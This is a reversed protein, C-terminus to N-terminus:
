NKQSMPNLGTIVTGIQFALPHLLAYGVGGTTITYTEKLHRQWSILGWFLSVTKPVADPKFTDLPVDPYLFCLIACFCYTSTLCLFANSYAASTTFGTTSALHEHVQGNLRSEQALKLKLELQKTERRAQLTDSIMGVISGLAGSGALGLLATIM